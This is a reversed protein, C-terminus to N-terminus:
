NQHNYGRNEDGGDSAHNTLLAPHHIYGKLAEHGDAGTGCCSGVHQHFAATHRVVEGKKQCKHHTQHNSREKRNHMRDSGDIEIGVLRDAAGTDVEQCVPNGDKGALDQEIGVAGLLEAHAHLGITQTDIGGGVYRQGHDQERPKHEVLNREAHMQTGASFM